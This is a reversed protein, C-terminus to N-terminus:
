CIVGMYCHIASLSPVLHCLQSHLWFPHVIVTCSLLKSVTCTNNQEKIKDISNVGMVYLELMWEGTFVQEYNDDTITVVQSKETKEAAVRYFTVLLFVLSTTATRMTAAVVTIKSTM